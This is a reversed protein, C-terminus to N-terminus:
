GRLYGRIADFLRAVVGNRVAPNRWDHFQGLVADLGPDHLKALPENLMYYLPGGYADVFGLREQYPVLHRLVDQLAAKVTASRGAAVAQGLHGLAARIELNAALDSLFRDGDGFLLGKYVGLAHSRGLQQRIEHAAAQQDQPTGHGIAEWVAAIQGGLGPILGEALGTLDADAVSGGRAYHAFLYTHPIQMCHTQCNGIVGRPFPEAPYRDFTKRLGEPDYNTLPFTPEGEIAGYPIYCRKDVLGLARTAALARALRAASVM